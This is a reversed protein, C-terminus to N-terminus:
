SFFGSRDGEGAMYKETIALKMEDHMLRGHVCFLFVQKLAPWDILGCKSPCNGGM